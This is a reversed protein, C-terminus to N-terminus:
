TPGSKLGGYTAPFAAPTGFNPDREWSRTKPSFTYRAQQPPNLTKGDVCDRELVVGGRGDQSIRELVVRDNQTAGFQRGISLGHERSAGEGQTITSQGRSGPYPWPDYGTGQAFATVHSGARNVAGYTDQRMAPPAYGLGRLRGLLAMQQPVKMGASLQGTADRSQSANVLGNGLISLDKPSFSGASIRGLASKQPEVAM